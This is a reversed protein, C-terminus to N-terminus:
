ALVGEGRPTTLVNESFKKAQIARFTPMYVEALVVKENDDLEVSEVSSATPIKDGDQEMGYLHLSLVEKANHLAEQENRGFSVCGNLDPFFISIEGDDEYIFVSPFAYVDKHM